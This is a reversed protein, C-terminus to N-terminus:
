ILLAHMGKWIKLLIFNDFWIVTDYTTLIDHHTFAGIQCSIQLNQLPFDSFNSNETLINKDM